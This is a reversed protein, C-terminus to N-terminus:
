KVLVMSIKKHKSMKILILKQSVNKLAPQFGYAIGQVGRLIFPPSRDAPEGVSVKNRNSASLKCIKFIFSEFSKAGRVGGRNSSPLVLDEDFSCKPSKVPPTHLSCPCM